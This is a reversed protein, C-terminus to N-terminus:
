QGRFLGHRRRELLEQCRICRIKLLKAREGLDADCEVCQLVTPEGNADLAQEPASLHAAHAVGGDTISQTVRSADDLPDACREVEDAMIAAM